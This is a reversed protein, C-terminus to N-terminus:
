THLSVKKMLPFDLVAHHLREQLNPRDLISRRDHLDTLSHANSFLLGKDCLEDWHELFVTMQTEYEQLTTKFNQLVLAANFSDHQEFCQQGAKLICDFLYSVM